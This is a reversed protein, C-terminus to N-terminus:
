SSEPRRIVQDWPSTRWAWRDLVLAAVAAALLSGGVAMLSELLLAAMILAAALLLAVLALAWYYRLRVRQGCHACVATPRWYFAYRSYPMVQEGCYGCKAPTM